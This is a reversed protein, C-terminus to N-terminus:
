KGVCGTKGTGSEKVYLSTSTGGSKNHYISGMPASLSGEPSGAGVYNYQAFENVATRLQELWIRLAEKDELEILSDIKRALQEVIELYLLM